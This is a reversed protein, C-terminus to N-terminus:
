ATLITNSPQHRIPNSLLHIIFNIINIQIIKNFSKQIEKVPWLRGYGQGNQSFAYVEQPKLLRWM